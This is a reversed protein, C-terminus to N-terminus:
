CGGVSGRLGARGRSDPNAAFERAHYLAPRAAPEGAQCEMPRQRKAMLMM